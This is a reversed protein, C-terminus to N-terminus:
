ERVEIRHPPLFGAKAVMTLWITGGNALMAVDIEDPEWPVSIEYDDHIVAEAAECDEMGPPADFRHFVGRWGIVDFSTVGRIRM